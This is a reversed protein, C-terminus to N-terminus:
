MFPSLVSGQTLGKYATFTMFEAGGVCFVLTKCWMFRFIGLPLEEILVNNYAGSIDLFAAVIQKKMEFSTLVDGDVDGSLGAYM